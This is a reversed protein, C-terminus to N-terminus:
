SKMFGYRMLAILADTKIMTPRKPYRPESVGEIVAKIGTKAPTIRKNNNLPIFSSFLTIAWTTTVRVKNTKIASNLGSVPAKALFLVAAIM